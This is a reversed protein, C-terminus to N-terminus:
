EETNKVKLKNDIKFDPCKIKKWELNFTYNLSSLDTIKRESSRSKIRHYRNKRSQILKSPSNIM